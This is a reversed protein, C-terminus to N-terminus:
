APAPRTLREGPCGETRDAVTPDGRHGKVRFLVAAHEVAGLV